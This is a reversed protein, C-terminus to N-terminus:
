PNMATHIHKYNVTKFHATQVHKFEDMRSTALHLECYRPSIEQIETASAVFEGCTKKNYTILILGTHVEPLSVYSRFGVM